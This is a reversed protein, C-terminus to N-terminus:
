KVSKARVIWNPVISM